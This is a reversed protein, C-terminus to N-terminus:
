KIKKWGSGSDIKWRSDNKGGSGPEFKIGRKELIQRYEQLQKEIRETEGSTKGPEQGYKQLHEEYTKKLSEYQDIQEGLRLKSFRKVEKLIDKRIADGGIINCNDDIWQEIGEPVESGKNFLKELLRRVQTRANIQAPDEVINTGQNGYPDIYSL